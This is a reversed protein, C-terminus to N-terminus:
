DCEPYDISIQLLLNSLLVLLCQYQLEIKSKTNITFKLVESYLSSSPACVLAGPSVLCIILSGSQANEGIEVV